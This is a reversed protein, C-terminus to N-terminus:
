NIGRADAHITAPSLEHWPSLEHRLVRPVSYTNVYLRKDVTTM